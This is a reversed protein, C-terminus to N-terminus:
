QLPMRMDHSHPPCFMEWLTKQSSNQFSDVVPFKTHAISIYSSMRYKASLFLSFSPCVPPSLLISELTLLFILFLATKTGRSSELIHDSVYQSALTNMVFGTLSLLIFFRSGRLLEYLLLIGQIAMLILIVTLIGKLYLKEALPDAHMVYLIDSTEAFCCVNVTGSTVSLVLQYPVGKELMIPSPSLTINVIADTTNGPIPAYSDSIM